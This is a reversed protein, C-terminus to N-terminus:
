VVELGLTGTRSPMLWATLVMPLDIGAPVITIGLSKVQPLVNTYMFPECPIGPKKCINSGAGKM